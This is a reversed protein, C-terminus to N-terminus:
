AESGLMMFARLLGSAVLLGASQPTSMAGRRLTILTASGGARCAPSFTPETSSSTAFSFASPTTAHGNQYPDLVFLARHLVGRKGRDGGGPLQTRDVRQDRAFASLRLGHRLCGRLDGADLLDKEGGIRSIGVGQGLVDARQRRP